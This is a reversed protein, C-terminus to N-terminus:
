MGYTKYPDVWDEEELVLDQPRSFSFTFYLGTLGNLVVEGIERVQFDTDLYLMASKLEEADVIIKSLMKKMMKRCIDLQELRKKEDLKACRRLLFITYVKSEFYGAGIKVINSEATEDVVLFARQSRMSSIVDTLGDWGSGLCFHFENDKAYRSRNCLDRIYETANWQEFNMM